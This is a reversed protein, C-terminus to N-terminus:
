DITHDHPRFHTRVLGRQETSCGAALEAKLTAADGKDAAHWAFGRDEENHNCSTTHIHGHAPIRLTIPSGAISVCLVITANPRLTIGAPVAIDIMVCRGYRPADCFDRVVMPILHAGLTATLDMNGEVCRVVDSWNANSLATYEAPLQVAVCVLRYPYQWRHTVELSVDGASVAGPAYVSFSLPSEICFLDPM